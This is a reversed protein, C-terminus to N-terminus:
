PRKGSETDGARGPLGFLERCPELGEVTVPVGRRREWDARVLRLRQLTRRRGRVTCTHQGNPRYGLKRSVGLSPANDTMAASTIAEAGLGEFAFYAIAERMETGFGEGHHALGLWSGSDTERTLAFDRAMVDQRGLVEGDRLVALSLNWAHPQWQAITGLVHQFTARAREQPSGDTWAVSFPMLAPDHVGAAAVASLADLTALDPLRLELRPTRIRLAYLPWFSVATSAVPASPTNTM